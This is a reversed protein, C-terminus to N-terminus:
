KTSIGNQSTRILISISKIVSQWTTIKILYVDDDHLVGCNAIAVGVHNGLPPFLETVISIVNM